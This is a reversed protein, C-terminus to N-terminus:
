KKKIEFIKLNDDDYFCNIFKNSDLWLADAIGCNYFEDSILFSDYKEKNKKIVGFKTKKSCAIGNSWVGCNSTDGYAYLIMDNFKLFCSSEANRFKFTYELQLNKINILYVNNNDGVILINNGMYYLTKGYFCGCKINGIYDVKGIVQFLIINEDTGIIFKGCNDDESKIQYLVRISNDGFNVKFFVKYFTNLIIVDNNNNAFSISNSNNLVYLFKLDANSENKFVTECEITYNNKKLNLIWLKFVEADCTVFKNTTNKMNDVSKIENVHGKKSLIYKGNTNANNLNFFHIYGDKSCTCIINNNM